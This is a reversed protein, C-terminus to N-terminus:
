AGTDVDLVGELLKADLEGIRVLRGRVERVEDRWKQRALRVEDRGPDVVDRNAALRMAAAYLEQSVSEPGHLRGQLVM